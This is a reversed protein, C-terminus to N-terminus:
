WAAGAPLEGGSARRVIMKDNPNTGVLGQWGLSKRKNVATASHVPVIGGRADPAQAEFSRSRDATVGAVIRRQAM